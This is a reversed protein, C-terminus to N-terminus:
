EYHAGRMERIFRLSEGPSMACARILNLNAMAETVEEQLDTMRGSSWGETYGIPPNNSFEMIRLPGTSGPHEVASLRMVQIVIHPHSAAEELKTLQGRMVERSGFPRLLVTEDIVFWSLPPNSKNLIGQRDIRMKVANEIVNASARPLGEQTVAWAYEVTQLLGPVVREEWGHIATAKAELDALSEASQEGSTTRGM